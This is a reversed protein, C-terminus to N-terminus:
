VEWRLLLHCPLCTRVTERPLGAERALEQLENKTFAARVSRQADRHVMTSRTVIQSAVRVSLETWTSRNLDYICGGRRSLQGLRRLLLLADSSSLHHLFIASLSLDVQPVRELQPASDCIWNFAPNRHQEAFHLAQANMDVGIGRLTESGKLLQELLWGDSCGVDLVSSGSPLKFRRIEARLRPVALSLQHLRSLAKHGELLESDPVTPLDMEEPEITRQSRM